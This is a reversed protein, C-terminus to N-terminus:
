NTFQRVISLAEDDELPRTPRICEIKPLYECMHPENLDSVRTIELADVLANINNINASIQERTSTGDFGNFAVMQYGLRQAHTIIQAATDARAGAAHTTRDERDGATVIKTYYITEM